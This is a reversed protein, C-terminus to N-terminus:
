QRSRLCATLLVLSACVGALLAKIHTIMWQAEELPDASRRPPLYDETRLGRCIWTHGLADIM